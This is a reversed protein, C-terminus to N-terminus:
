KLVWVVARRGNIRVREKKAGIKQCIAAVRRSYGSHQREKPMGIGWGPIKMKIGDKSWEDKPQGTMIDSVTIGNPFEMLANHVGEEWPDVATYNEHHEELQEEFAQELHWQTGKQHYLHVAEAWIEDRDERIKELNVKTVTVPWFRRAGTPDNLIADSNSSGVFCVNRPRITMVRDYPKRWRDYQAALFMKANDADAGRLSHLEAMEWLWVGSHIAQYSKESRLDLHSDSYWVEGEVPSSLERLATSKGIGQAGVLILMTDVKVGEPKENLGRAVCSIAWYKGLKCHLDDDPTGFYDPLLRELRSVEDWELSHLYERLPHYGKIQEAVYRVMDWVRDKSFNIGYTRAIKLKIEILDSDKIMDGRYWTVASFENYRLSDFRPDLTLVRELNLDSAKPKEPSLLSGDKAYKPPSKDLSAWVAADPKEIVVMDDDIHSNLFDINSM